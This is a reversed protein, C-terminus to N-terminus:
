LSRSLEFREKEAVSFGPFMSNGPKKKDPKIKAELLKAKLLQELSQFNTPSKHDIAARQTTFIYYNNNNLSFNLADSLSM